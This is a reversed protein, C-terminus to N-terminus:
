TINWFSVGPEAHAHYYALEDTLHATDEYWALHDAVYPPGTRVARFSHCGMEPIPIYLALTTDIDAHYVGESLPHLWFQTEWTIVNERRPYCDPIRDLRLGLGAKHYGACNDLVLALREPWDPPCDESPVVDPDTVVYRDNGCMQRFWLHDWLSRPHNGPGADVVETGNAALQKLWTEAEPYTTGHDVIVPELGASLLSAVCQRGYTVRDRFIVFAKM